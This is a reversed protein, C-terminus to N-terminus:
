RYVIRPDVVAYVADTVVNVTTFVVASLLIVAQIAPFDRALVVEVTYRGLGPWSFVYETLVAGGMLPGITLGVVTVVPILANKLAHRTIVGRESLGKSRATRIYDQRIVDLMGSRTVRAVTAFPYWALVIAPLALYRLSQVFGGFDLRVLNDVLLFGTPGRLTSLASSRGGTPLLNLEVSFFMLLMLGIWFVPMALGILGVATVIYDPLRQRFVAGLVGAPLGLAVAMALSLLGLELTAPLRAGIAAAVPERNRFSVGLDGRIVEGLWRVYQEPLPRNLGM